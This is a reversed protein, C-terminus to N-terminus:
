NEVALASLIAEKTNADYDSLQIGRIEDDNFQAITIGLRSCIGNKRLTYYQAVNSSAFTEQIVGEIYLREINLNQTNSEAVRIAATDVSYERLIDLISNRIYKLKEPINLTQPINVVDVCKFTREETCFVVFSTEKPAARVGLIRM